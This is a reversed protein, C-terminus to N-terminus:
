YFCFNEQPLCTVYTLYVCLNLALRVVLFFTACERKYSCPFCSLCVRKPKPKPKRKPKPKPKSYPSYLTVRNNVSSFITIPLSKDVYFAMYSYINITKNVINWTRALM